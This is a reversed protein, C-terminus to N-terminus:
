SFSGETTVSNFHKGCVTCEDWTTSSSRYDYGGSSYHEKQIILPHHCDAKIKKDITLIEDELQKKQYTLATREEVLNLLDTNKKSDLKTM